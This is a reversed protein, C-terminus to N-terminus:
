SKAQLKIHTHFKTEQMLSLVYVSPKLASHQHSYKSGLPIVYYSAPSFKMVYLKM